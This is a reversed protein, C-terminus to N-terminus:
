RRRVRDIVRGAALGLQVRRTDLLAGLRAAHAQCDAAADRAAAAERQAEGAAAEAALARERLRAAESELGM